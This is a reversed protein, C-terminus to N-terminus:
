EYGNHHNNNIGFDDIFQSSAMVFFKQSIRQQFKNELDTYLDKVVAVCGIRDVISSMELFARTIFAVNYNNMDVELKVLSIANEMRGGVERQIGPTRPLVQGCPPQL